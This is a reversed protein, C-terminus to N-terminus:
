SSVSTNETVDHSESASGKNEVVDHSRGENRSKKANRPKRAHEAEEAKEKVKLLLDTFRAIQRFSTEEMRFVAAAGESQPPIASDRYYAANAKLRGKRDSERAATVSEIEERLLSQLKQRAWTRDEGTVIPVDPGPPPATTAPDEGAEPDVLQYLLNLAQEARGQLEGGFGADLAAFEDSGAAFQEDSVAEALLELSEIKQDFPRLQKAILSDLEHNIQRVQRVAISDQVRDSRELRWIARALRNVLRFQFEDSPQWSAQLSDLLRDFEEPDEGLIRLAESRVPRAYFGHRVRADRCREVGEETAPGGSLHANVQNAALKEPTMDPKKVLSM